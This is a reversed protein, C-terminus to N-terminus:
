VVRAVSFVLPNKDGDDVVGARHCEVEVSHRVASGSRTRAERGGTNQAVAGALVELSKQVIQANEVAGKRGGLHGGLKLPRVSPVSSRTYHTLSPTRGDEPAANLLSGASETNAPRRPLESTAAGSSPRM